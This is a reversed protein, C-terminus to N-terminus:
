GAGTGAAGRLHSRSWALLRALSRAESQEDTRVVLCSFRRGLDWYLRLYREHDAIPEEADGREALRRLTTPLDAWCLATPPAPTWVSWLREPVLTCVTMWHRDFVLIDSRSADTAEAVARRAFSTAEDPDAAALALLREGM